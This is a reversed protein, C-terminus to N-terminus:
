VNYQSRLMHRMSGILYLIRFLLKVVFVLWVIVVVIIFLGITCGVFSASARDKGGIFVGLAVLGIILIPGGFLLLLSTFIVSLAEDATGPQDLFNALQRLFLMFLIFGALSCLPSLLLFLVGAGAGAALGGLAAGAGIAIICIFPLVLGASDLSMSTIVLPKGGTKSPVWCCLISGTIGLAPVVFAITIQAVFAIVGAASIASGAGSIAGPTADTVASTGAMVVLINAFGTVAMAVLITLIKAYHFALGLNTMHMQQRTLARKKKKKRQRYAAEDEEEYEYDRRRPRPPPAPGEEILDVDTLVDEDPIVDAEDIENREPRPEPPHVPVAM